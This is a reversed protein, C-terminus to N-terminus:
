QRDHDNLKQDEFLQYQYGERIHKTVVTCKSIIISIFQQRSSIDM